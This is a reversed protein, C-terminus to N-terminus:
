SKELLEDCFEEFEDIQTLSQKDFELQNDVLLILKEIFDKVNNTKYTAVGRGRDVIDSALVPINISQAELIAVSNGDFNTPRIYADVNSLVEIFDITRDLYILREAVDDIDTAYGKNPDVFVLVYNDPLKDLLALIFSCGYVEKHEFFVKDYAYLLFYKKDEKKEFYHVKTTSKVMGEHFLSTFLKVKNKSLKNCSTEVQKNLVIIGDLLNFLLKDLIKKDPYFDSGHYTLINKKAFAKGLLIAILIKWRKIYHIHAIDYRNISKFIQVSFLDYKINKIKLAEIMNEISKTVGGVPPPIRGFILISKM